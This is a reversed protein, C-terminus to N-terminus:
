KKQCKSCYFSSRNAQKIKKVENMCIKCPKNERGYVFFENQFYGSSGNVLVYDKITSGGKEISKLLIKKINYALVFCQKKTLQLSTPHIKSLFLAESAYINGVGVLYKQNMILKKIEIRKNKSIKYLYDGNFDNNLPELGLKREFEQLKEQNVYDVMGFRRVDNFYLYSGNDLTFIIHDHKVFDIKKQHALIKGTMGLHIIISFNNKLSIILYKARRAVAIIKSNVAIVAFNDPVKKRLNGNRVSIDSFKKNIILPEIYNKITEVEPLEPM